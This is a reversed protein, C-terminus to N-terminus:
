EHRKRYEQPTEGTAALFARSFSAPQAFGVAVAIEAIASETRELMERAVEIRVAAALDRLSTQEGQLRRQLTRATLGHAVAVVEADLAERLHTRLYTRVRGALSEEAGAGEAARVLKQLEPSATRLGISLDTRALRLGTHRQGFRPLASFFTRWSATSIAPAARRLMVSHITAPMTLLTLHRFIVGLVIEELLPMLASDVDSDIRIEVHDRDVPVVRLRLGPVMRALYDRQLLELAEGLNSTSVLGYSALGFAGVPMEMAVRLPLDEGLLASAETWFAYLAELTDGSPLQLTAGQQSALRQTSYVVAAVVMPDLKPLPPLEAAPEPPAADESM